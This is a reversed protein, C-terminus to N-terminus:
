ICIMALQVEKTVIASLSGLRLHLCHGKVVVRQLASKLAAELLEEGDKDDGILERLLIMEKKPLATKKREPYMPDMYIVDPRDNGTLESLYKKSDEQRINLRGLVEDIKGGERAQSYADRLLEFVASSRELALVECGLCAIFFADRGLGATADLVFPMTKGMGLARALLQNKGFGKQNKLKEFHKKFDISIKTM